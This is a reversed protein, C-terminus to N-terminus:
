FIGKGIHLTEFQFKYDFKMNQICVLVELFIKLFLYQM